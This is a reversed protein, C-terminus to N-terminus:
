RYAERRHAVSYVFIRRTQDDITYLVRYDGVRFRYGDEGQLKKAGPPRPNTELALIRDSIRQHIKDPLRDMEKEASRKIEAAYSV